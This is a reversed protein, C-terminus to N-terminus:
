ALPSVAHTLSRCSAGLWGFPRANKEHGITKLSAAALTLEDFKRSREIRRGVAHTQTAKLRDTGQLFINSRDFMEIETSTKVARLRHTSSATQGSMKPSTLNGYGM